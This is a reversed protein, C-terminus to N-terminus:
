NFKRSVVKRIKIESLKSNVAKVVDRIDRVEVSYVPRSGSGKASGRHEYMEVSYGGKIRNVDIHLFRGSELWYDVSVQHETNLIDELNGEIKMNTKLEKYKLGYESHEAGFIVKLIANPDRNIKASIGLVGRLIRGKREKDELPNLNKRPNWYQCIAERAARLGPTLEKVDKNSRFVTKVSDLGVEAEAVILKEKNKNSM